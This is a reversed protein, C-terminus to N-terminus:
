SSEKINGAGAHSGPYNSMGLRPNRLDNCIGRTYYM